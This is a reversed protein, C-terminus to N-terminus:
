RAYKMAGMAATMKLVNLQVDQHMARKAWEVEERWDRALKQLDLSAVFNGFDICPDECPGKYPDECAVMNDLLTGDWEYTIRAANDHLRYLAPVPGEADWYSGFKSKYPYPAFQTPGANDVIVQQLATLRKVYDVAWPGDALTIRIVPYMGVVVQATESIANLFSAWRSM